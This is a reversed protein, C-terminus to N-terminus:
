VNCFHKIVVSFPGGSISNWFCSKSNGCSSFDCQLRHTLDPLTNGTDLNKKGRERLHDSSHSDAIDPVSLGGKIFCNKQV